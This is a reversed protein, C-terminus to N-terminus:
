GGGLVGPWAAREGRNPPGVCGIVIASLVTTLATRHLVLISTIDGFRVGLSAMHSGRWRREGAVIIYRGNDLPRVLIPQM